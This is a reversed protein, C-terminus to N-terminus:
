FDAAASDDRWYPAVSAFELWSRRFASAAASAEATRFGAIHGAARAAQPGLGGALKEAIDRATVADHIDGLADQLASMKKFFPKREERPYFDRFIQASYRLRRLKIRLKHLAAPDEFDIRAATELLRRWSKDIEQDAYPRAPSALRRAGAERWPELYAARLLELTFEGFARDALASAARHRASACESQARARLAVSAPAVALSKAVFIDLDRAEGVLRSLRKATAALASLASDGLAKDFVSQITRLRRFAVRLTRAAASDRKEVISEASRVIQSAVDKLAQSLADAVSAGAALRARSVGAPGLARSLKSDVVLRLRGDFERNLRQALDFVGAADGKMLELEVEAIPGARAAGLDEAKGIEASIEILAGNLSVLRSWRDTTTRAIPALDGRDAAIMRDIAAVGSVLSFAGSELMRECELRLLAGGDQLASKVVLATEGAEARLRLSAGARTLRKDASDFYTSTLQAWEGRGAAIADLFTLAPVATVDHACGALKLEFETRAPAM